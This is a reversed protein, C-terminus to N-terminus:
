NKNEFNTNLWVKFGASSKYIDSLKVKDIPIDHFKAYNEFAKKEKDNLERDSDKRYDHRIKKYKELKSKVEINERMYSKLIVKLEKKRKNLKQIKEIYEVNNLFKVNEEINNLKDVVNSQEKIYNEILIKLENSRKYFQKLKYIINDYKNNIM